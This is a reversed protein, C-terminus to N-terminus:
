WVEREHCWCHKAHRQYSKIAARGLIMEIAQKSTGVITPGWGRLRARYLGDRKVIHWHRSALYM